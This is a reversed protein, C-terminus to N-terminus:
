LQKVIRQIFLNVEEQPMEGLDNYPDPTMFSIDTMNALLNGAQNEDNDLIAISYPLFQMQAKLENTGANGMVAIASYGANHIKIADFVGETVFMFNSMGLTEMGWVGNRKFEESLYSFYKVDRPDSGKRQKKNANPNYQQYGVMRGDPSQIPFTATNSKPDTYVHTKSLDVGRDKLHQKIDEIRQAVKYWNM